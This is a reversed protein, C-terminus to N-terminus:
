SQLQEFYVNVKFPYSKSYCQSLFYQQIGSEDFLEFANGESDYETQTVNGLADEVRRYVKKFTISEAYSTVRVIERSYTVDPLTDTVTIAPESNNVM